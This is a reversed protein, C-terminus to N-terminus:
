ILGVNIYDSASPYTGDNKAFVKVVACEVWAGAAGIFPQPVLAALVVLRQAYTQGAHLARKYQDWTICYLVGATDPRVLFGAAEYTGLRSANMDTAVNRGDRLTTIPDFNATRIDERTYDAVFFPIERGNRNTLTM